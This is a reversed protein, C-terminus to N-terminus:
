VELKFYKRGSEFHERIKNERIAVSVFREIESDSFGKKSIFRFLSSDPLDSYSSILQELALLFDLYSPGEEEELLNKQKTRVNPNVPKKNASVVFGSKIASLNPDKGERNRAFNSQNKRVLLSADKLSDVIEGKLNAVTHNRRCRPCKKGKQDVKAYTFQSCKSCTFVIYKTM